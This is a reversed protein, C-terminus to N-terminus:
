FLFSYRACLCEFFILFSRNLIVKGTEWFSLILFAVKEEEEWFILIIKDKNFLSCEHLSRLFFKTPFIITM